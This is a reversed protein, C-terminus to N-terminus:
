YDWGNSIADAELESLPKMKAARPSFATTVKLDELLEDPVYIYPSNPFLNSISTDAAWSPISTLYLAVYVLPCNEFTKSDTLNGNKTLQGLKVYKLKRCSRFNWAGLTTLSTFFVSELSSCSTFCQYGGNSVHSSVIKKITTNYSFAGNSFTTIKTFLDM